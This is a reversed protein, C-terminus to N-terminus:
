PYNGVNLHAPGTEFLASHASTAAIRTVSVHMAILTCGHFLVCLRRLEVCTIPDLQCPLGVILARESRTGPLRAQLRAKPTLYERLHSGHHFATLHARKM